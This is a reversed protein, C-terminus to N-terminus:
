VGAVSTEFSASVSGDTGSGENRQVTIRVRRSAVPSGLLYALNFGGTATRDVTSVLTEVGNIEAYFRFKVTTTGTGLAALNVVAGELVRGIDTGVAGLALMDTETTGLATNVFAARAERKWLNDLYGARTATLRTELDDVSSQLAVAGASLNDLYGARTATLRALLSDLDTNLAALGSTGDALSTEITDVFAKILDIENAMKGATGADLESLRAATIEDLLLARAATLRGELDDVSSQLAVAGGSLNDLYGARVATLRALLTDIDAPLNAADLEAMRVSTVQDLAAARATTLKDNDLNHIREAFSGATETGDAAAATLKDLSTARAATLRGELDDVKDEVDAVDASLSAGTPVGIRSQITDIKTSDDLTDQVVFTWPPIPYASVDGDGDTVQVGSIQILGQDGAAWEGDVINVGGTVEIFGTGKALTPQTTVNAFAGNATSKQLVITAASIDISGSPVLAKAKLDIFDVRVILKGGTRDVSGLQSPTALIDLQGAISAAFDDLRKYVASSPDGVIEYTTSAAVQAPFAPEVTVTGTGGNFATVPRSHGRMTGNLLRVVCNVLSPTSASFRGTDVITTGDAAGAGSTTGSTIVDADLQRAGASIHDGNAM